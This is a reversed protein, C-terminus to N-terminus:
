MSERPKFGQVLFRHGILGSLDDNFTVAIRQGAKLRLPTGANNFTWRVNIFDNGSGVNEYEVDFCIGGWDANTKVPGQTPILNTVVTSADSELVQLKIGNTLGNTINGYDASAAGVTDEIHVLMRWVVWEATHEAWFQTPSAYNGVANEDGGVTGDATLYTAFWLARSGWSVSRKEYHDAM